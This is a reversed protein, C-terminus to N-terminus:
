SETHSHVPTLVVLGITIGYFIFFVGVLPSAKM